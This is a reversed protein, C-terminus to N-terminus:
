YSERMKTNREQNRISLSVLPVECHIMMDMAHKAMVNDFISRFSKRQNYSPKQNLNSFITLPEFSVQLPTPSVVKPISEVSM